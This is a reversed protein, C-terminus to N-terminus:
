MEFASNINKWATEKNKPYSAVSFKVHVCSGHEVVLLQNNFFSDKDFRLFFNLEEDLRDDQSLLLKLDKESMKEKVKKLFSNIIKIKDSFFEVIVIKKKDFGLAQTKTLRIRNKKIDEEDFYESFIVKEYEEVDLPELFCRLNVNNFYRMHHTFLSM